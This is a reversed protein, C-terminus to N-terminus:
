NSYIINNIKIQTKKHTKQTYVNLSFHAKLALFPGSIMESGLATLVTRPMYFPIFVMGLGASIVDIKTQGLCVIYIYMIYEIDNCLM